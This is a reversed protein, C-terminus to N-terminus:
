TCMRGCLDMQPVSGELDFWKSNVKKYTMLNSSGKVGYWSTYSYVCEKGELGDLACKRGCRAMQHLSGKV